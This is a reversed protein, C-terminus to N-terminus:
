GDDGEVSDTADERTLDLFADELTAQESSAVRRKLEEPSNEAVLQGDHIVGVTDALEDVVPLLHTSLFVTSGSDVIEAIMDRLTRAARPDLGATPEDLFVVAPEHLIAQILATKQRMGKSYDAIPEDATASLQLRDLLSEIRETVDSPPLDRLHAALDLQEYATLESYLPPREPLYGIQRTVADRDRISVGNISAQGSTPPTLATLMQM